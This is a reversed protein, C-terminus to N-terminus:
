YKYYIVMPFNKRFHLVVKIPIKSDRFNVRKGELTLVEIRIKQFRQKEIPVYFNKDFVHHCHTTPFIFSRLCRVLDDGIFQPSIVNCYVLSHTEGITTLPLGTGVVPPPCSIECVGVEWNKHSGLDIPQALKVTFASLKNDKGYIKRSANSFLTVYFHNTNM